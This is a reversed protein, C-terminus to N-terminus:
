REVRGMGCLGEIADLRTQIAGLEALVRELTSMIATAEIEVPEPPDRRAAMLETIAATLESHGDAIETMVPTLVNLRRDARHVRYGVLVLAAMVVAAAMVAFLRARDNM